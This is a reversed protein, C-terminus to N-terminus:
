DTLATDRTTFTFARKSPLHFHIIGSNNNGRNSHDIARLCFFLGNRAAIHALIHSLNNGAPQSRSGALVADVRHRVTHYVIISHM